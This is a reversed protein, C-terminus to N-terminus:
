YPDAGIARDHEMEAALRRARRRMFMTAPWRLLALGVRQVVGAADSTIEVSVLAGDGQAEVHHHGSVAPLPGWPPHEVRWRTTTTRHLTARGRPFPGPPADPPLGTLWAAVYEPPAAVRIEIKAWPTRM